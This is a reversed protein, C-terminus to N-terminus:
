QDVTEKSLRELLEHMIRFEDPSTMLELIETTVSEPLANMLRLTDAPSEQWKLLVHKKGLEPSLKSVLTREKEFGEDIVKGRREELERESRKQQETFQEQATILHQLTRDLLEQQAIRDRYAREGMARILRDENRLRRIEVDSQSRAPGEADPAEEVPAAEEPEDFEGRLVGAIQEVREPTLKGSSYLLGLLGILAVLHAISLVAATNYLKGLM